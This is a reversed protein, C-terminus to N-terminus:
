GRPAALGVFRPDMRIPDLVSNTHQWLRRDDGAQLSAELELLARDNDGLTAAVAAAWDHGEPGDIESLLEMESRAIALSGLRGLLVARRGRYGVNEPDHTLLVEYELLAQQDRRAEYLVSALMGRERVDLGDPASRERIWEATSVLLERGRDPFGHTRLELAIFQLTMPITATQAGLGITEPSDVHSKVDEVLTAVEDIRGLAALERGIQRANSLPLDPFLAVSTQAARLAEEHRGLEHNAEAVMYTFSTWGRMAGRGATLHSFAELAELPRGALCAQFGWDYYAKSEPALLAAARSARRAGDWDRRGFALAADLLHRYYSSLSSRRLELRRFVSGAGEPDSANIHQMGLFYLAEVFTTDAQYAAEFHPIAERSALRMYLEMGDNFHRYAELTPATQEAAVPAMREDLAVAVAGAARRGLTELARSRAEISAAIPELATGFSREGVGTIQTVFRLSDRELTYTGTLIVGAGTESAASMVPDVRTGSEVQERLWNATALGTTTPVVQTFGARRLRQTIWDAAAGGVFDLTPDGSLNEFPLVLIRDGDIPIPAGGRAAPRSRDTASSLGGLILAGVVLLGTLVGLEPGSVRQRGQEGHYWALVLVFPVGLAAIAFGFRIVAAPWEFADRIMALVELIVWAGASYGLLWEVLKRERIRRLDVNM